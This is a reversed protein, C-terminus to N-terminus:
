AEEEDEFLNLYTAMAKPDSPVHVTRIVVKPKSDEVISKETLEVNYGIARKHLVEKMKDWVGEENGYLNLYQVLAKIDGPVHQQRIVVKSKGAENLSREPTDVTYGVARKYLAAKIEEAVNM